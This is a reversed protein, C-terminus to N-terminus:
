VYRDPRRERDALHPYVVDAAGIQPHARQPAFHEFFGATFSAQQTVFIEPTVVFLGGIQGDAKRARKLVFVPQDQDPRMRNGFQIYFNIERFQSPPEYGSRMSNTNSTVAGSVVLWWPFLRVQ